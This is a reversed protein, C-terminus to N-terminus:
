RPAVATAPGQLRALLARAHSQFDALASRPVPEGAIFKEHLPNVFTGNRSVRYDLHPGTSLGTSGVRGIVQKQKVRAGPRVGAAIGSLHNYYTKYDGRHRLLVQIGNGGKRGAFEVTGDAVAWVPTGTPAAYDIALHPRVGGLVPHPRRHTFGSSIRTFQLPSRLFSKKLSQGAPDYHAFRGGHEYGVATIARGDDGGIYQAALIRGHDVYRGDAYRAEVLLRFRDGPQVDGGFDIESEFIQAMDLLLQPSMEGADVADWLSGRVEGTRLETRLEPATERREAQWGDDKAQVAFQLWPSVTLLVETVPGDAVRALELPTGPRLRRLEAGAARLAAAVQHAADADLGQRRLAGILTERQGIEATARQPEPASPPAAPLPLAAVAPAKIPTAPWFQWALAAAAVLTAAALVLPLRRM